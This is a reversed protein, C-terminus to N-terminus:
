ASRSQHWRGHGLAAHDDDSMTMRERWPKNALEDAVAQLDAQTPMTFPTDRRKAPEKMRVANGAKDWTFGLSALADIQNQSAMPAPLAIPAPGRQAIVAKLEAIRNGSARDARHPDALNHIHAATPRWEWQKLGDRVALALDDLHIDATDEVMFTIWARVSESPGAGGQTPLNRAAIRAVLETRALREDRKPSPQKL